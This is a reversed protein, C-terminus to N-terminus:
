AMDSDMTMSYSPDTNVDMFWTTVLSWLSAQPRPWWKHDHQHGLVMSGGLAM